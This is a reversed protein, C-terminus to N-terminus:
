YQYDDMFHQRPAPSEVYGTYAQASRPRTPAAFQNSHQLFLYCARVDNQAFLQQQLHGPDAQRHSPSPQFLGRHQMNSTAMRPMDFPPPARTLPATFQVAAYPPRFMPPVQELYPQHYPNMHGYQTPVPQQSPQRLLLLEQVQEFTFLGPQSFTQQQVVPMNSSRREVVPDDAVPDEVVPDEVVPERRGRRVPEERVPEEHVPKERVPERRVSEKHGRVREACVQGRRVPGTREPEDADDEVEERLM